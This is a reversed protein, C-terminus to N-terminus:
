WRGRAMRRARRRSYGAEHVLTDEMAARRANCLAAWSLVAQGALLVTAVAMRIDDPMWGWRWAFFGLLWLWACLYVGLIWVARMVREAQM